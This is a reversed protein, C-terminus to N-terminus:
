YLVHSFANYGLGAVQRIGPRGVFSALWGDGPTRRWIEVACDIGVHLRGSGDVGHLRRRIDGLGAGFGSLALAGYQHRPFRHGWGAGSPGLPVTAM